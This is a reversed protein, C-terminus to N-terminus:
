YQPHWQPPPAPPPGATPRSTAPSPHSAPETRHDQTMSDSDMFPIELQPPLVADPPPAYAVPTLESLQSYLKNAYDRLKDRQQCVARAYRELFDTRARLSQLEVADSSRETMTHEFRSQWQDAADQAAHLEALQAEAEQRLHSLRDTLKEREIFSQQLEAEATSRASQARGERSSLQEREHVLREREAARQESTTRLEDKLQRLLDELRLQERKAFRLDQDRLRLESELRVLEVRDTRRNADSVVVDVVQPTAETDRWARSETDRKLPAVALPTNPGLQPTVRVEVEEKASGHESFSRLAISAAISRQEALSAQSQFYLADPSARTELM